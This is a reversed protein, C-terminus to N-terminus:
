QALVPEVFHAVVHSRLDGSVFGVRLPRETDPDHAHCPWSARTRAEIIDGVRCHEAFLSAADLSPSHSLIFLLMSYIFEDGIRVDEPQLSIANRISSEADAYQGKLQYTNGLQVHAAALNPDIELARRL